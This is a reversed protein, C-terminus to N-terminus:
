NIKRSKLLGAFLMVLTRFHGSMMPDNMADTMADTMCYAMPDTLMTDSMAGTMFDTMIYKIIATLM